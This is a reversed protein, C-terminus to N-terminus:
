TLLICSLTREYIPFIVIFQIIYTSMERLSMFDPRHNGLFGGPLLVHPVSPPFPSALVHPDCRLCVWRHGGGEGVGAGVRGGAM